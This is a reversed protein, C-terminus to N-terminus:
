WISIVQFYKKVGIHDNIVDGAVEVWAHGAFPLKHIGIKMDAPFSYERLICTLVASKPLCLSEKPFWTMAEDVARFISTVDNNEPYLSKRVPWNKVTLYRAPFGGVWRILQFFCFTIFAAARPKHYRVLITVTSRCLKMIFNCINKKAGNYTTIYPKDDSQIIGNDILIELLNNVTGRIQEISETESLKTQLILKDILNDLTIGNPHTSLIEWITSGTGILSYFKGREINLLVAGDKDTSSVTFPALSFLTNDISTTASTM